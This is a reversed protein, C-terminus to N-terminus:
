FAIQAFIVLTAILGVAFAATRVYPIGIWYVVAHAIRAWFYVMAWFATTENAVGGVHAVLVVAAFPILSEVANLHVRDCRKVWAPLDPLTPDRYIDATPMGVVSFRGLIYPVWLLATLAATWALYTLDPTM